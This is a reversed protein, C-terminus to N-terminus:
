VGLGLSWSVIDESEWTDKEGDPGQRQWEVRIGVSADVLVRAVREVNTVVSPLMRLGASAVTSALGGLSTVTTRSIVTGPRFIYAVMNGNSEATVSLLGAEVRGKMNRSQGEFSFLGSGATGARNAWKTSCYCFRFPHTASDTQDQTTHSQALKSLFRAANLTFTYSVREFEQPSSFDDAKGGVCARCNALASVLETDQEYDWISLDERTIITLKRIIAAKAEEMHKGDLSPPHRGVVTVKTIRNDMLADFLVHKGIFGTAGTILIHM